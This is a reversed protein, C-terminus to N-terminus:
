PPHRRRRGEPRRARTTARREIRSDEEEEEEEGEEEEDDGDDDGDSAAPVAISDTPEVPSNAKRRRPKVRPPPPLPEPSTGARRAKRNRARQEVTELQERAEILLDIATEDYSSARSARKHVDRLTSTSLGELTGGFKAALSSLLSSIGSEPEPEPASRAGTLKRKTM